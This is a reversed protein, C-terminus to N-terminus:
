LSGEDSWRVGISAESQWGDYPVQNTWAARVGADFSWTRAFQYLSRLGLRIERAGRNAGRVASAGTGELRVRLRGGSLEANAESRLTETAARAVPDVGPFLGARLSTSLSLAPSPSRWLVGANGAPYSVQEVGSGAFVAAGGAAEVTLGRSAVGRWFALANSMMLRHQDVFRYQAVTGSVHVSNRRDVQWGLVAAAEPGTYNPLVQVAEHGVGGYRRFGATISLRTRGDFAHEVGVSGNVELTHVLQTSPLRVVNPISTGSLPSYDTFGWQGYGRSVLRTADTLPTELRLEGAHRTANGATLPVGSLTERYVVEPAYMLMAVGASGTARVEFRGALDVEALNAHEGAGPEDRARADSEVTTSWRVPAAIVVLLAMIPLTM